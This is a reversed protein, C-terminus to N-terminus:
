FFTWYCNSLYVIQELNEEKNKHRQIFNLPKGQYHCGDASHTLKHHTYPLTTISVAMSLFQQSDSNSVLTFANTIWYINIKLYYPQSLIMSIYFVSYKNMYLKKMHITIHCPLLFSQIKLIETCDWSVRKMEQQRLIPLPHSTYIFYIPIHGYIRWSHETTYSM